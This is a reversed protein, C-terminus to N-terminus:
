WGPWEEGAQEWAAMAVKTSLVLEARDSLELCFGAVTGPHREGGPYIYCTGSPVLLEEGEPRGLGLYQKPELRGGDQQREATPSSPGPRQFDISAASVFPHHVSGLARMGGVTSYSEALSVWGVPIAPLASAAYIQM